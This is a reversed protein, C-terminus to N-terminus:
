KKKRESPRVSKFNRITPRVFPRVILRVSPRVSPCCALDGYLDRYVQVRDTHDPLLDAALESVMDQVSTYRRVETICVRDNTGAGSQLVAANGVVALKDHITQRGSDDFLPRAEWLKRRDKIADYHPRKLQLLLTKRGAHSPFQKEAASQAVASSSSEIAIRARKVLLQQGLQPSPEAPSTSPKPRSAGSMYQLCRQMEDRTSAQRAQALDAEAERRAARGYHVPGAVVVDRGFRVWARWGNGHEVVTGLESVAKLKPAMSAIRPAFVAECLCQM